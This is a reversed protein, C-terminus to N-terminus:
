PMLKNIYVQMRQLCQFADHWLFFIFPLFFAYTDVKVADYNLQLFAWQVIINLTNTTM